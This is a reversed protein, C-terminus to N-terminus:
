IRRSGDLDGSDAAAHHLRRACRGGSGARAPSGVAAALPHASGGAAIVQGPASGRELMPVVAPARGPSCARWPGRRGQNRGLGCVALRAQAVPAALWLRLDSGPMRGSLRRTERVLEGRRCDRSSTSTARPCLVMFSAVRWRSTPWGPPSGSAAASRRSFPSACAARRLPIRCPTACPGDRWSIRRAEESDAARRAQLVGADRVTGGYASAVGKNRHARCDRDPHLVTAAHPAIPCIYDSGVGAREARARQRFEGCRGPALEV